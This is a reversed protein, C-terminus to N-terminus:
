APEFTFDLQIVDTSSLMWVLIFMAMGVLGLIFGARALGVGTKAGDSAAIENLAIRGCVTASLSVVVCGSCLLVGVVGLM